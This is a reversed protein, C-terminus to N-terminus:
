FCDVLESGIVNMASGVTRGLAWDMGTNFLDPALVCGQRVGSSVPFASSPQGDVRVRSTTDSYLASVLRLPM